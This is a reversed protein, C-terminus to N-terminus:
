RIDLSASSASGGHKKSLAVGLSIALIIILLVLAAIAALLFWRKKWVPQGVVEETAPTYPPPAAEQIPADEFKAKREKSEVSIEEPIPSKKEKHDDDDGYIDEKLDAPVSVIQDPTIDSIPAITMYDEEQSSSEIPKVDKDPVSIAM